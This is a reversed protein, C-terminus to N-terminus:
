HRLAADMAPAFRQWLADLWAPDDDAFASRVQSRVAPSEPGTPNAHAHLWADARLAQLVSLSDVTGFELAAATIEGAVVGPLWDLWEGHLVASVSAGDKASRVDGWVSAARAHGPTGAPDSVIFEGHGWPGLGTHLDLVRVSGAGATARPLFGALWRHSWVPGSGGYFVGTPHRYQGQSVRAQVEAVGVRAALEALVELARAQTSPDWREPVLVGALEDYGPNEPPPAQWDVFNRNVDVNDENVRRVWAFGVPNLGHICVVRARGASGAESALWRAQLASGAYGEVGHTGSVVLVVQDARPDGVEATDIALEGGDPGRLPHPHSAVRAGVAGAADLFAARATAYDPALGVPAM